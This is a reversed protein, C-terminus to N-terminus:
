SGPPTWLKSRAREREADDEKDQPAPEQPAAPEAPAAPAQAQTQAFAMQVQSLADKVAPAQEEPVVPLLGRAADIAMKAQDPDRETEEGALGLRLVAINILTAVTQLVVDEVRLQRLQDELAARIEEETPEQPIDESM